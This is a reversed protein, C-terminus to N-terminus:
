VLRPGFCMYMVCTVISLLIPNLALLANIRSLRLDNNYHVNGLDILARRARTNGDLGQFRRDHWCAETLGRFGSHPIYVAWPLKSPMSSQKGSAPFVCPVLMAHVCSTPLAGANLRSVVYISKLRRM